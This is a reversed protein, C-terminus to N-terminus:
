DIDGLLELENASAVEDDFVSTTLSNTSGVDASIQSDPLMQRHPHPTAECGNISALVARQELDRNRQMRLFYSKLSEEEEELSEVFEALRKANVTRNEHLRRNRRRMESSALQMERETRGKFFWHCESQCPIWKGRVYAFANGMDFPDYRVPVQIGQLEPEDFVDAWYFINNIKVGYNTVIMSTEKRTTPLTLIRFIEDYGIKRHERLGTQAMGTEFAERPTQKLTWHDTTDYIEYGWELLRRHAADLTWVAHTSPDVENSVERVNKMIQTNGLVNNVLQRRNTDFLRECTSGGRPKGERSILHIGFFGCLARFYISKFEKGGDVVLYQMLRKFRRVCERLVMMCSRYSPPDFTLYAALLRRSNGCSLFTAWPRGLIKGTQSCRLRWDLKTHDIHCIQFPRDGQVPTDKELWHSFPEVQKAARSGKRKRIQKAKPRRRTRAIFFPLSPAILEQSELKKVLAGYVVSFGKQKITEFDNEICDDVEKLVEDSFRPEYNGRKSFSPILGLYGSGYTAEAARYNSLYNYLTREPIAEKPFREGALYRLVFELRRNAEALDNPSAAGIIENVEDKLSEEESVPLGQILKKRFLEEFETHTLRVVKKSEGCLWIEKEGINVIEAPKGDCLITSGIAVDIFNADTLRPFVTKTDYQQAAEESVFVYVRDSEKLAAASLDVYLIEHAIMTYIIDTGLGAQLTLGVLHSLLIAPESAVHAIIQIRAEKPLTSPDASFFDELFDLNRLYTRDIDADTMIWYGLGFEEAHKESPPSHWRGDEERCYRNPQDKALEVMKEDTKCEVFGMKTGWIVFFDPTHFVAHNKGDKRVYNLKITIPQDWYGRVDDSHEWGRILALEYHGSEYQVTFGMKKSAYHGSRNKPGSRVARAPNSSLIRRVFQRGREPLGISEVLQELEKNDLM